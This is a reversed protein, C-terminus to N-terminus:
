IGYDEISYTIVTEFGGQVAEEIIEKKQDSSLADWEEQDMYDDTNISTKQPRSNGAYGDEVEWRVIIKM